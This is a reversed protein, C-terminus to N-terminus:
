HKQGAREFARERLLQVAIARIEAPSYDDGNALRDGARALNENISSGVLEPDDYRYTSFTAGTPLHRVKLDGDFEFESRKAGRLM